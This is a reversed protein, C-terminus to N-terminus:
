TTETVPADIIVEEKPNFIDKLIREVTVLCMLFTGLPIALYPIAMSIELAPSTQVVNYLTQKVGMVAVIALIALSLFSGFIAVWRSVKPPLKELVATMGIQYGKPLGVAAGLMTVWVLSFITVESAWIPADNLIYRGIVGYPVVISILLMGVIVGWGAVRLLIKNLKALYQIFNM